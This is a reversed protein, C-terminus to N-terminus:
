GRQYVRGVFSEGHRAQKEEDEGGEAEEGGRCARLVIERFAEPLSSGGALLENLGLEEFSVVDYSRLAKMRPVDLSGALITRSGDREVYGIPDPMPVPVENRLASSRDDGFVLVDPM